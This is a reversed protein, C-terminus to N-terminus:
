PTLDVYDESAGPAGRAARSLPAEIREAIADRYHMEDWYNTPERTIPSARWYDLVVTGPRARAMAVVQRKCAETVAASGSGPAGQSGLWRPMFVLVLTTPAPTATVMRDLLAMPPLPLDTPATEIHRHTEPPLPPLHTAARAADYRDEPPLFRTYGDRGYRPRMLGTLVAFQRGAEQVAYFSLMERLAPWPSAEYFSEPFDRPTYRQLPGADCWVHDLGIVVARPTPHARLFVEFLRSQEYATAANMALNAFRAEFAENLAAPRLMRSTSTGIIAADFSQSRALGAFAFRANTSIPPREAPIHFPLVGWPDVLVVFGYVVACGLAATAVARLFFRRWAGHERAEDPDSSSTSSSM